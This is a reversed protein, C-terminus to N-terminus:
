IYKVILHNLSYTKECAIGLIGVLYIKAALIRISFDTYNLFSDISIRSQLFLNGNAVHNSIYTVIIELITSKNWM